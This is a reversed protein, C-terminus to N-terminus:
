ASKGRRKAFDNRTRLRVLGGEPVGIKQMVGRADDQYEVHKGFGLLLPLLAEAIVTKGIATPGSITITMMGPLMSRVIQAHRLTSPPYTEFDSPKPKM